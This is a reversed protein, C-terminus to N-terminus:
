LGAYGDHMIASLKETSGTLHRLYYNSHSLPTTPLSQHDPGNVGEDECFLHQSMGNGQTSASVPLTKHNNNNSGITMGAQTVPQQPQQQPPPPPAAAAAATSSSSSASLSSSSLSSSLMQTNTSNPAITATTAAAAASSPTTSNPLFNPYRTHQISGVDVSMSRHVPRNSYFDILDQKPSMLGHQREQGELRIATDFLASLDDTDACISNRRSGPVSRSATNLITMGATASNTTQFPETVLTHSTLPLFTDNPHISHLDNRNPEFPSSQQIPNEQTM